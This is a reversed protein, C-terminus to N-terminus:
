KFRNPFPYPFPIQIRRLDEYAGVDSAAGQPRRVGRQDTGDTAMGARDIAPSGPLLARTNTHGGSYQLPALLPETSSQDTGRTFGCTSGDDINYGASNPLRAGGCNDPGNGAVISRSVNLPNTTHVTQLFVGGGDEATNDTITAYEFASLFPNIPDLYAAGGRVRATNGTVTSNVIRFWGRAALGGGDGARNNHLTSRRMELASTRRASEAFLAIGGGEGRRAGVIAPGGSDQAVNGEITTDDVFAWGNTVVLGGGTSAINNRLTSRTLYLDAARSFIGGGMSVYWEGNQLHILKGRNGEVTVDEFRAERVSDLFVGAGRQVTHGNRITLDAFRVFRPGSTIPRPNLVHFVRDVPNGEIITTQERAGLIELSVGIDLDNWADNGLAGESTSLQRNDEEIGAEEGGSRRTLQYLGAPLLIQHTSTGGLANAEMIAARLTCVPGGPASAACLGDGPSDDPLDATSTVTFTDARAVLPAAFLIVLVFAPVSFRHADRQFM